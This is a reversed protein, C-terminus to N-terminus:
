VPRQQRIARGVQYLLEPDLNCSPSAPQLGNHEDPAFHVEEGDINVCICVDTNRMKIEVPFILMEGNRRITINFKETKM